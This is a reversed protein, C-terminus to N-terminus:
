KENIKELEKEADQALGIVAQVYFKSPNYRYVAKELVGTRKKFYSLYNAVSLINNDMNYPEEGIFWLNLSSPLFQAYSVAGAYSSKLELIDLKNKECFILLEELQIKAFERKYDKVYLSVYVNFPNYGGIIEGFDSEIGIVSAVIERKIGYTKEAELLKELNDNIFNIIKEKKGGYAIIKKYNDLSNMKIEPAKKFNSDIEDYIEFRSDKLLSDIKFGKKNLYDTLLSLNNTDESHLIIEKQKCEDSQAKIENQSFTLFTTVSLLKFLNKM